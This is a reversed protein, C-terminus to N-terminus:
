LILNEYSLLSYKHLVLYDVNLSKKVYEPRQVTQLERNGRLFDILHCVSVIENTM